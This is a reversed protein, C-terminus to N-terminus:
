RSYMAWWVLSIEWPRGGSGGYTKETTFIYYLLRGNIRFARLVVLNRIILEPELNLFFWSSSHLIFSSWYVSWFKNSNGGGGIERPWESSFFNEQYAISLLFDQAVTIAREEWLEIARFRNAHNSWAREKNHIKDSKLNTAWLRSLSRYNKYKWLRLQSM